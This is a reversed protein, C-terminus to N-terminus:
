CSLLKLVQNVKETLAALNDLNGFLTEKISIKGRSKVSHAFSKTQREKNTAAPRSLPRPTISLGRRPRQLALFESLSLLKQNAPSMQNSINTGFILTGNMVIKKAFNYDINYNAM